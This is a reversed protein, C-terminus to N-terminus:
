FATYVWVYIAGSIVDLANVGVVASGLTQGDYETTGWAANAMEADSTYLMWCHSFDAPNEVGNISTIMGNTFTFTFDNDQSQRLMEMCDLLTCNLGQEEVSIVVRTQTSEVLTCKLNSKDKRDCAFLCLACVLSLLLSFFINTKRKM